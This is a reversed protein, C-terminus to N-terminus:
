IFTQFYKRAINVNTKFLTVNIIKLTHLNEVWTTTNLFIYWTVLACEELFEVKDLEKNAYKKLEDIPIPRPNPIM